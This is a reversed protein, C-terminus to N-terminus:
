LGRRTRSWDRGSLYDHVLAGAEQCSLVTSTPSTDLLMRRSKPTSFRDVRNQECESDMKKVITGHEPVFPETPSQGKHVIPAASDFIQSGSDRCENAKIGLVERVIVKQPIVQPQLSKQSNLEIDCHDFETSIHGLEEPTVFEDCFLNLGERPEQVPCSSITEIAKPKPPLDRSSFCVYNGITTFPSGTSHVGDGFTFIMASANRLSELDDPSSMSCKSPSPEASEPSSIDDAADLDSTTAMEEIKVHVFSTEDVCNTEESPESGDLDNMSSIDTLAKLPVVREFASTEPENCEARSRVTNSKLGSLNAYKQKRPISRGKKVHIREYHMKSHYLRDNMYACFCCHYWRKTGDFYSLLGVHKTPEWPIDSNEPLSM